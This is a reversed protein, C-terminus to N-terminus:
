VCPPCTPDCSGGCTPGRNASRGRSESLTVLGRGTLPALTTVEQKGKEGFRAFDAIPISDIPPQYAALQLTSRAKLRKVLAEKSMSKMINNEDKNDLGIKLLIVEVM